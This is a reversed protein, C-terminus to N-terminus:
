PTTFRLSERITPAHESFPSSWIVFNDDNENQTIFVEVGQVAFNSVPGTLCHSVSFFYGSNEGYSRQELDSVTNERCLSNERLKENKNADNYEHLAKAFEELTLAYIEANQYQPRTESGQPVISKDRVAAIGFYARPVGEGTQEYIFIHDGNEDFTNSTSNFSHGIPYQITYGFMDNVLEHKPIQAEIEEESSQMLFYTPILVAFAIILAILM